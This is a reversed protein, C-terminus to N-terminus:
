RGGVWHGALVLSVVVFARSPIVPLSGLGALCSGSMLYCRPNISWVAGYSASHLPQHTVLPPGHPGYSTLREARSVTSLAAVLGTM